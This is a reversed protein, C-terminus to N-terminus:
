QQRSKAFESVVLTRIRDIFSDESFNLRAHASIASADWDRAQLRLLADSISGPSPEDFFVGTKHEVVSDLFGGWRLAAAPKGFAAGEIVSLGFDEYSAAIIASSNAYLWRLAPETVHSVFQVNEPAASRLRHQEPGTGLVVLRLGQLRRVAEIIHGVNKYPLLRSVCLLYGPEIGAAPQREGTTDLQLPPPFVEADIGYCNRVRERVARSNALYVHATTAAQKDHELLRNGLLQLGARWALKGKGLYRETQYLWRAPTHCYVVKRAPPRVVVAHAWGASSCIVVDADVRMHDFTYAMFPLAWRHRRRFFTLRNLAAPRVDLGKFEAYATDPSYLATHIPAKPFAKALALVVRDGGAREVLVDHIIAVRM